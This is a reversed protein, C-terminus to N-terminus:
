APGPRSSSTSRSGARGTGAPGSCRCRGSPPPIPRPSPSGCGARTPLREVGLLELFALFDRDPVANLRDLVQEGMDAFLGILARGLDVGDAPPHWPSLLQALRETDRVLAAHDRPDIRPAPRTM